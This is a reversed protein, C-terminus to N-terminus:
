RRGDLWEILRVESRRLEEREWEPLNALLDPLERRAPVHVMNGSYERCDACWALGICREFNRDGPPYHRYTYSLIEGKCRNEPTWHIYSVKRWRGQPKRRM